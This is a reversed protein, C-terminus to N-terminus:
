LFRCKWRQITDRCVGYKTAAEASTTEAAYAAAETRDGWRQGKREMDRKRQEEQQRAYNAMREHPSGNGPMQWWYIM